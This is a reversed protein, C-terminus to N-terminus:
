RREELPGQIEGLIWLEGNGKIGTVGFRALEVAM